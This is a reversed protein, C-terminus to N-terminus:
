PIAAAAPTPPVACRMYQAVSGYGLNPSQAGELQDPSHLVDVNPGLKSTWQGNPLQREAHKVRGQHDAYLAIKKYNPELDGTACMEYGLTQFVGWRTPLRTSLIQRINGIQANM